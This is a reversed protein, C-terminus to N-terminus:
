RGTFSSPGEAFIPDDGTAPSCDNVGPIDDVTLVAVVGPYARVAALDLKSIKGCAEKAAYGPEVHLTGERSACTMSILPPVACMCHPVTM